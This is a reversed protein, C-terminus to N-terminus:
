EEVMKEKLGFVMGREGLNRKTKDYKLGLRKLESLVTEWKIHTLEFYNTLNTKSVMDEENKTVEYQETLTNNFTDYESAINAFQEKASKPVKLEDIYQM